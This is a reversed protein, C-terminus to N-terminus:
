RQFLLYLNWGLLMAGICGAIATLRVQRLRHLEIRQVLLTNQDALDKILATSAHMQENLHRVSEEVTHLRTSVSETESMPKLTPADIQGNQVPDSKKWRTVTNWLKAAGDAVKPANEVVVGWPINTLVTFITGAAM